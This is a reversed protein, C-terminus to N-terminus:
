TRGGQGLAARKWAKVPHHGPDVVVNEIQLSMAYVPPPGKQLALPPRSCCEGRDMSQRRRRYVTGYRLFAAEWEPPGETGTVVDLTANSVRYGQGQVSAPLM